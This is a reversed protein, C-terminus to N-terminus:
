SKVISILPIGSLFNPLPSCQLRPDPSLLEPQLVPDFRMRRPSWNYVITEPGDQVLLFRRKPVGRTLIMGGSGQGVKGGGNEGASKGAM